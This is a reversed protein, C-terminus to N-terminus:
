MRNVVKSFNRLVTTQQTRCTPLPRISYFLSAASSHQTLSFAYPGLHSWRRGLWKGVFPLLVVSFLQQLQQLSEEWEEQALRYEEDSDYSSANSSADDLSADSRPMTTSPLLTISHDFKSMPRSHLKCVAQPKGGIAKSGKNEAAM